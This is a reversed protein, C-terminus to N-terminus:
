KGGHLAQRRRRVAPPLFNPQQPLASGANGPTTPAPAGQQRRALLNARITGIDPVGSLRSLTVWLGVPALFFLGQRFLTDIQGDRFAIILIPLFTM